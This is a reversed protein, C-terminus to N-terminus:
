RTRRICRFCRWHYYHDTYRGNDRIDAWRNARIQQDWTGINNCSYLGNENDYFCVDGTRTSGAMYHTGGLILYIARNAKMHDIVFTADTHGQTAEPEEGEIGARALLSIVDVGTQAPLTHIDVYYSALSKSYGVNAPHMPIHSSQGLLAFYCWQVAAGMCVGAPIDRKKHYESAYVDNQSKFLRTAGQVIRPM